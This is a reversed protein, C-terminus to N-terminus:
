FYVWYDWLFFRECGKGKGLEQVVERRNGNEFKELSKPSINNRPIESIRGM